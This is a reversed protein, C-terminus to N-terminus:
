CIVFSSFTIMNNFTLVILACLDFSVKWVDETLELIVQSKTAGAERESEDPPDSADTANWDVKARDLIVFTEYTSV